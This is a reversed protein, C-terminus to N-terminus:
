SYEGITRKYVYTIHINGCSLTVFYTEPLTSHLCGNHYADRFLLAPAAVQEDAQANITRIVPVEVSQAYYRGRTEM